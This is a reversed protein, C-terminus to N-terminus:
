ISRHQRRAMNANTFAITNSLTQM